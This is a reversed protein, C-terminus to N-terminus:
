ESTNKGEHQVPRDKKLTDRLTRLYNVSKFSIVSQLSAYLSNLSEDAMGHRTLFSNFEAHSNRYDNTEKILRLYPIRTLLQYEVEQLIPVHVGLHFLEHICKGAFYTDVDERILPMFWCFPFLIKECLTQIETEINGNEQLLPESYQYSEERYSVTRTFTHFCHKCIVSLNSGFHSPVQALVDEPHIGGRVM